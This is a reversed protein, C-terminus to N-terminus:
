KSSFPFIAFSNCSMLIKNQRKEAFLIDHSFNINEQFNLHIFYSFIFQVLCQLEKKALLGYNFMEVSRELFFKLKEVFNKKGGDGIKLHSAILFLKLDNHFRKLSM